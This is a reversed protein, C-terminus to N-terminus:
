LQLLNDTVSGSAPSAAAARDLPATGSRSLLEAPERPKVLVRPSAGGAAASKKPTVAGPKKFGGPSPTLSLGAKKAISVFQRQAPSLSEMRQSRPTPTAMSTYPSATQTLLAKSREKAQQQQRKAQKFSVRDALEIGLQERRPTEPVKFQPGPVRSATSEPLALPTGEIDGWTMFPSADVGPAPSPTTVFSFGNVQPSAAGSPTRGGRLDDLDVRGLGHDRRFAAISRSDQGLMPYVQEVVNKGQVTKSRDGAEFRTNGLVIEKPPGANATREEKHTMEVGDVFYMLENRSVYNSWTEIQKVKSGEGDEIAKPMLKAQLKMEEGLLREYKRKKDINSQEMIAMFASNDESTHTWQFADLRMNTKVAPEEAAAASSAPPPNSYSGDRRPTSAVSGHSPTAHSPTGPVSFSAPTSGEFGSPTGRVSRHTKRRLKMQIERMKAIDNNAEAELWDLQTRLKPLDPFFDRQIITDLADVYTEEELVTQKPKERVTPPIVNSIFQLAHTAPRSEVIATADQSLLRDHISVVLAKTHEVSDVSM